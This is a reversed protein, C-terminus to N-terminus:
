VGWSNFVWLFPHYCIIFMIFMSNCSNLFPPKGTRLSCCVAVTYCIVGRSLQAQEVLKLSRTMWQWRADDLWIRSHIICFFWWLSGAVFDDLWRSRTRGVRIWSASGCSSMSVRRPVTSFEWASFTNKVMFSVPKSFFIRTFYFELKTFYFGWHLQQNVRQLHNSHLSDHQDTDTRHNELCFHHNGITGSLILLKQTFFSTLKLPTHGTHMNDCGWFIYPQFSVVSMDLLNSQWILSMMPAPTLFIAHGLSRGHCGMVSFPHVHCGVRHGGDAQFVNAWVRSWPGKHQDPLCKKQCSLDWCPGQQSYIYNRLVFGPVFTPSFFRRGGKEWNKGVKEWRHGDGTEWSRGPARSATTPTLVSVRGSVQLMSPAWHIRLIM